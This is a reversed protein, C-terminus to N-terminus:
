NCSKPLRFQLPILSTYFFSFLFKSFFIVDRNSPFEEEERVSRMGLDSSPHASDAQLSLQAPDSRLMPSNSHNSSAGSGGSSNRGRSNRVFSDGNHALSPPQSPSYTANSTVVSPQPQSSHVSPERGWGTPASVAQQGGSIRLPMTSSESNVSPHVDNRHMNLPHVDNRRMNPPYPPSGVMAPNNLPVVNQRQQQQRINNNWYNNNDEDYDDPPHFQYQLGAEENMRIPFMSSQALVPDRQNDDDSHDSPRPQLVQDRLTMSLGSDHQEDGSNNWQNGRNDGSPKREKDENSEGGPVNRQNRQNDGSPKREKKTHTEEFWGPYEEQMDRFRNIAAILTQEATGDACDQFSNCRQNFRCSIM